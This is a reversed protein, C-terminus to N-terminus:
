PLLTVATNSKKTRKKTKTVHLTVKIFIYTKCVILKSDPKQIATFQGHILFIASM